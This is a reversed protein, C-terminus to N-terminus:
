GKQTQLSAAKLQAHMDDLEQAIEYMAEAFDGEFADPKFGADNAIWAMNRLTHVAVWLDDASENALARLTKKSM